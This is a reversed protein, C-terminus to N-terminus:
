PICHWSEIEFWMFSVFEINWLAIIAVSLSLSLSFVDRQFNLNFQFYVGM